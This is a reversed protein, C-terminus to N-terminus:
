TGEELYTYPMQNPNSNNPLITLFKENRLDIVSINSNLINKEADILILKKLTELPNSSPLKIIKNKDFLIDWRRNGVWAIANVRRIHPGLDLLLNLGEEIKDEVGMGIFLPLDSRVLRNSVENIIVGGRDLLFYRSDVKNIIVPQREIVKIILKGYSNVSVKAKQVGSLNEIELRIEELNLRLSSTPLDVNMVNIIKEKLIKNEVGIVLENITFEPREVFVNHMSKLRDVALDHLKLKFLGFQIFLFLLVLVSICIFLFRYRKRLWIRALLFQFKSPAPNYHRSTEKVYRKGIYKDISLM